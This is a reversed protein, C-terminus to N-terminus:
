YIHKFIDHTSRNKWSGYQTDELDLEKVMKSLIVREVAKAMVPLLHIIRSSKVIDYIEKDGKKIMVTEPKHWDQVDDRMMSEVGELMREEDVRHWFRLLPHSMRDIGAARNRPLTDLAIKLEEKTMQVDVTSREFNMGEGPQLQEAILQGIQEHQFVKMSNEMIMPPIVRRGEPCKVIKFIDKDKEKSLIEKMYEYRTNILRNRFVKRVLKWDKDGKRRMVKIDKNMRELEDTWWDNRGRPGKGTPFSKIIRTMEDWTKDRRGPGVELKKLDEEMKKWNVKKWAMNVTSMNNAEELNMRTMQGCHELSTKDILQVRPQKRGKRFMMLNITSITRFTVKEHQVVEFNKNDM